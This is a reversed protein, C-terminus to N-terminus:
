GRHHGARRPTPADKALSLHTRSRHYYALYDSLVRRLHQEGFVVVHNLCDRRISRILREAYPNQWPRSPASLVEESGMGAVRQRFAEGDIADRDRLLVSKSVRLREHLSWWCWVDARFAATVSRPTEASCWGDVVTTIGAFVHETWKAFSRLLRGANLRFRRRTWLAATVSRSYDSLRAVRRENEVAAFIASV